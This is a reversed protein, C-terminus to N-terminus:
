TIHYHYLIGTYSHLNYKRKIWYAYYHAARELWKWNTYEVRWLQPQRCRKLLKMILALLRCDIIINECNSNTYVTMDVVMITISILHAHFLLTSSPTPTNTISKLIVLSHHINFSSTNFESVTRKCKNPHENNNM